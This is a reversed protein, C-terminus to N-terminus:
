TALLRLYSKSAQLYQYTYLRRFTILPRWYHTIPSDLTHFYMLKPTSRIVISLVPCFFFFISFSLFFFFNYAALCRIVSCMIFYATSLKPVILRFVRGSSVRKPGRLKAPVIHEYLGASPWKLTKEGRRDMTERGDIMVFPWGPLAEVSQIRDM